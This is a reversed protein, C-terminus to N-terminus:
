VSQFGYFNVCLVSYIQEENSTVQQNDDRAQGPIGAQAPIVFVFRTVRSVYFKFCSSVIQFPDRGVCPHCFPIVVVVIMVIM